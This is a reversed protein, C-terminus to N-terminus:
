NINRRAIIIKCLDGVCESELIEDLTFKIGFRKEISDILFLNTISDWAEIDNANTSSTILLSSDNFVEKFVVEIESLLNQNEM